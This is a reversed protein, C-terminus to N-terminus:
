QIIVRVPRVFGDRVRVLATLRGNSKAQFVTEASISVGQPEVRESVFPLFGGNSLLRAEAETVALAPIDDLVTEVPLFENSEKSIHGLAKLYELSFANEAYFKGCRTRRLMCVHGLCGLKEAMDRALSRVYTGKGCDVEFVTADKDSVETLRLADIRIRRPKLEIEANERALDYARKGNVHVASYKPPVQEIEGIFEPIIKLIDEKSPRVESVATVDGEADDTTTSAGWRVAFRYTKAGDAVYPITKTAEGLAVPLVGSAAPDLTGAHGAKQANFLRKVISVVTTSGIGVPKDVIVWGNVNDGKRKKGM